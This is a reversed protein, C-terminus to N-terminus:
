KFVQLKVFRRWSEKTFDDEDGYSKNNLSFDKYGYNDIYDANKTNHYLGNKFFRIGCYDSHIATLKNDFIICWYYSNGKDNYFKM